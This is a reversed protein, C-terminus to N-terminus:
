RASLIIQSAPMSGRYLLLDLKKRKGHSTILQLRKLCWYDRPDKALSGGYDDVTCMHFSPLGISRHMGGRQIQAKGPPTIRIRTSPHVARCSM